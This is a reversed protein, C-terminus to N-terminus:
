RRGHRRDNEQRVAQRTQQDRDQGRRDDDDKPPRLVIKCQGDPGPMPLAQLVVNFGEGNQHPFAAGIPTWWDDKDDGRKTVTFATFAPKQSNTM